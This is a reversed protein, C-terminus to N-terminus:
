FTRFGLTSVRFALDQFGFWLIFALPDLGHFGFSKILVFSKMEIDSLSFNEWTEIDSLSFKNLFKSLFGISPVPFDL